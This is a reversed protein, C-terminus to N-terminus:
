CPSTKETQLFPFSICFNAVILSWGCTSCMPIWPMPWGRWWGSGSIPLVLYSGVTRLGTGVPSVIAIGPHRATDYPLALPPFPDKLSTERYSPYPDQAPLPSSDLCGKSRLMDNYANDAVAYIHPPAESRRKGKYAAVVSPTYVPLWKYPNITVCFLGSYTQPSLTYISPQQLGLEWEWAGARM